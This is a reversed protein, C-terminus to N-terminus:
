YYFIVLAYFAANSVGGFNHKTYGHGQQNILIKGDNYFLWVARTLSEITSVKSPRVMSKKQEMSLWKLQIFVKHTTHYMTNITVGSM